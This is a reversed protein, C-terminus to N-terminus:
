RTCKTVKRESDVAYEKTGGRKESCNSECVMRAKYSWRSLFQYYIRRLRLRKTGTISRDLACLRNIIIARFVCSFQWTYHHFSSQTQKGYFALMSFSCLVVPQLSIPKNTQISNNHTNTTIPFTARPSVSRFNDPLLPFNNFIRLQTRLVPSNKSYRLLIPLM